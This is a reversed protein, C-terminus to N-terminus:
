NTQVLSCNGDVEVFHHARGERFAACQNKPDNDVPQRPSHVVDCVWDPIIAESLCPGIAPDTGEATIVQQCLEQCKIQALTKDAQKKQELQVKGTMYDSIRVIPQCGPLIFIASIIVVLLKM